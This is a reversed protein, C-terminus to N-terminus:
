ENEEGLIMLNQQIVQQIKQISNNLSIFTLEQVLSYKCSIWDRKPQSSADNLKM